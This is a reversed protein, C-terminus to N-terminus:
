LGPVPVPVFSTTTGGNGLQGYNNKGWSWFVGSANCILSHSTKTAIATVGSLSSVQVPTDSRGSIDNRGLQGTSNSGWTWVTGDSSLAISHYLGGSIQIVNSIGAIETPIKRSSTGNGLQGSSGNGWGWVKGDSTAALSHMEGAGIAIVHTLNAVAVPSLSSSNSNNGLQGNSNAGWANITGNSNLALAFNMGAAIAVINSIGPVMGPTTSSQTTGVGLQGASNDGWTWVTGDQKLAMSFDAGAAIAKVNTLVIQPANPHNASSTTGNGVQGTNNYGWAYLTGDNKLALSHYKGTAIQTIGSLDPIQTPAAKDTYSGIGLQGYNNRGWAYVQGNKLVLSYEDGTAVASFGPQPTPTPTPSPTADAAIVKFHITESSFIHGKTVLLDLRHGGLRLDGGVSISPTNQNAIQNGDLFWQYGDVAESTTAQINMTTGQRIEALQGSFTITIPSQLDPNVIIILGGENPDIQPGTLPYTGTSTQGAIIRVAEMAGWAQHDRSKLQVWLQYYGAELQTNEYSATTGSLSFTLPIQTGTVSTLTGTVAPQSIIGDPWSLDLRLVGKGNLLRVDITLPSTTGSVVATTAYGSAILTGAANKADVTITWNGPVLSGITTTNETIETDPIKADGPGVGSIHFTKIVMDLPPQITRNQFMANNITLRLAGTQSPNSRSKGGCGSLLLLLGLLFLLIKKM